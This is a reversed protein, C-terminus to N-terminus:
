RSATAREILAEREAKLALLGKLVKAVVEKKAVDGGSSGVVLSTAILSLQDEDGFHDFIAQGNYLGSNAEETINYKPPHIGLERCLENVLATASTGKAAPVCVNSADAAGDLGNPPTQRKPPPSITNNSGQTARKLSPTAPRAVVVNDQQGGATLQTPTTSTARAPSSTPPAETLGQAVLWDFACQAAFRKAEKKNSFVQESGDANLGYGTAPFHEIFGSPHALSEAITM